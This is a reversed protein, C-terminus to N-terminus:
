VKFRGHLKFAAEVCRGSFVIIPLLIATIILAGGPHIKLAGIFSCILFICLSIAAIRSKFWKLFFLIGCYVFLVIFTAITFHHLVGVLIILQIVLWGMMLHAMGKVVGLAEDRTRPSSYFMLPNKQEKMTGGKLLSNFPYYITGAKEALM